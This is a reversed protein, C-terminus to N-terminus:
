RFFSGRYCCCHWVFGSCCGCRFFLGRPYSRLSVWSWGVVGPGFGLGSGPSGVGAVGAWGVVSPGLGALSGGGALLSGRLALAALWCVGVGRVSQSGFHGLGRGAVLAAAGRRGLRLCGPLGPQLRSRFLALCEGGPQIVVPRGSPSVGGGAGAAAPRGPRGPRFGALFLEGRGSRQRGAVPGLGPVHGVLYGARHWGLGAGASGSFWGLQALGGRGAATGGRLAGRLPPGWEITAAAGFGGCAAALTLCSLGLLLELWGRQGVAFGGADSAAVLIFGVFALGLLPFVWRLNKRYLESHRYRWALYAVMGLPWAETLVVAVAVDVWRLSLMFLVYSFAVGLSLAMPRTFFGARLSRVGARSFVVSRGFVFLFLGLCVCMGLRWGANVLLERGAPATYAILLPVGSFLLVCLLMYFLAGHSFRSGRLGHIGSSLTFLLSPCRRGSM